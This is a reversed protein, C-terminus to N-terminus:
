MKYFINEAPHGYQDAADNHQKSIHRHEVGDKRQGYRRINEDVYEPVQPRREPNQKLSLRVAEVFVRHSLLYQCYRTDLVYVIDMEPRHVSSFMYHSKM